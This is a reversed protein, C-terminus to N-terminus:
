APDDRLQSQDPSLMRRYQIKSQAWHFIPCDCSEKVANGTKSWLYIRCISGLRGQVTRPGWLSSIAQVFGMGWGREAADGLGQSWHKAKETGEGTSAPQPSTGSHSNSDRGETSWELMSNFLVWNLTHYGCLSIQIGQPFKKLHMNRVPGLPSFWFRSCSHSWLSHMELSASSIIRSSLLTTLPQMLACLLSLM